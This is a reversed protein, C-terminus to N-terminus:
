LSVFPEKKLDPLAPLVFGHFSFRPIAGVHVSHFCSSLLLLLLALSPYVDIKKPHDWLFPIKSLFPATGM